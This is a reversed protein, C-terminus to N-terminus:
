IFANFTKEVHIIVYFLNANHFTYSPNLSYILSWFVNALFDHNKNNNM